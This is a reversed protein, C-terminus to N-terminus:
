SQKETLASTTVPEDPRDRETPFRVKSPDNFKIM